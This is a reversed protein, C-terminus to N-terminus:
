KTKVKSLLYTLVILSYIIETGAAFKPVGLISPLDLLTLSDVVIVFLATAITGYSGWNKQLWIGFAFITTSLGFIFTYVSYIVNSTQSTIDIIAQSSALLWFGFFIHILGIILQLVTLTTIGLSRGRFTPLPPRSHEQSNM